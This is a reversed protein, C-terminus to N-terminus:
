RYSSCKSYLDISQNFLPDSILPKHVAASDKNIMLFGGGLLLLSILVGIISGLLLVRRGVREIMYLPFFTALFNM